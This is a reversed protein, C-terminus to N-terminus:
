PIERGSRGPRLGLGAGAPLVGTVARFLAKKSVSGDAGAAARAGLGRALERLHARSLRWAESGLTAVQTLYAKKTEERENKKNQNDRDNRNDRNRARLQGPQGPQGPETGPTTGTPFIM